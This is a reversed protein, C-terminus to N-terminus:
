AFPHLPVEEHWYLFVELVGTLSRSCQLPGRLMQPGHSQGEREDMIPFKEIPIGPIKYCLFANRVCQVLKSVHSAWVQKAQM